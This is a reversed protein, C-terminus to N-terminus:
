CIYFLIQKFFLYKINKFYPLHNFKDSLRFTILGINLIKQLM